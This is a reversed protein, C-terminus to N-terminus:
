EKCLNSLKEGVIRMWSHVRVEKHQPVGVWFLIKEVVQRMQLCMAIHTRQLTQPIWWRQPCSRTWTVGWYLFSAFSLVEM